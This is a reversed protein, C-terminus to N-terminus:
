LVFLHLYIHCHLICSGVEIKQSLETILETQQKCEEWYQQQQQQLKGNHTQLHRCREELQRLENSQDPLSHPKSHDSQVVIGSHRDTEIRLLREKLEKNEETLLDIEENKRALEKQKAELDQCFWEIEAMQSVVVDHPLAETNNKM